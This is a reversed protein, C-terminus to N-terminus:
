RRAGGGEREGTREGFCAVRDELEVAGRVVAGLVGREREELECVPGRVVREGLRRGGGWGGREAADRLAEGQRQARDEEPRPARADVEEHPALDRAVELKTEQAADGQPLFLALALALAM